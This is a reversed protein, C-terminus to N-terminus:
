AVSSFVVKLLEGLGFKSMFNLMFRASTAMLMVVEAAPSNKGGRSHVV